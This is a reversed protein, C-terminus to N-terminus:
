GKRFWDLMSGKGAPKGSGRTMEPTESRAKKTAGAGAEVIADKNLCWDIHENLGQNSTSPGLAKACIPCVPGLTHSPTSVPSKRKGPRETALHDDQPLFDEEQLDAGDNDDLTTIDIV